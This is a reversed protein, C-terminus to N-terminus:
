DLINLDIKETKLRLTNTIINLKKLRSDEMSKNIKKWEEVIDIKKWTEIFEVILNEKNRTSMDLLTEKSWNICDKYKNIIIGITKNWKKVLKFKSHTNIIIQEDYEITNNIIKDKKELLVNRIGENKIKLKFNNHAILQWDKIIKNKASKTQLMHIKEKQKMNKLVNNITDILDKKLNTNNVIVYKEYESTITKWVEMNSNNNNKKISKIIKNIEKLSLTINFIKKLGILKNIMENDDVLLIMNLKELIFKIFKNSEIVETINDFTLIHKIESSIEKFWYLMRGNNENNEVVSKAIANTIKKAISNIDNKTQIVYVKENNAYKTNIIHKIKNINENIMNDKSNKKAYCTSNITDLFENIIEKKKLTTIKQQCVSINYKNFLIIKIFNIDNIFQIFNYRKIPKNKIIKRFWTTIIKKRIKEDKETTFNYRVKGVIYLDIIKKLNEWDLKDFFNLNGIKKYEDENSIIKNEENIKLWSGLYRANKKINFGFLEKLKYIKQLCKFDIDENYLIDSKDANIKLNYVNFITQMDNIVSIIDYYEENLIIDDAYLGIFIEKYKKLIYKIPYSIYYNFVIPSFRSGMPVGYKTQTFEENLKIYAQNSIALWLKLIYWKHYTKNDKKKLKDCKKKVIKELIERDVTEYARSLDILVFIGEKKKQLYVREIAQYTSSQKKFGFQRNLCNKNIKDQLISEIDNYFIEEFIKIFIPSIAIIRYNEISDINKKKNLFFTKYVLQTDNLIQILIDILKRKINQNDYKFYKTNNYTFTLLYKKMIKNINYSNINNYDIATSNIKNYVKYITNEQNYKRYKEKIENKQEENLIDYNTLFWQKEHEMEIQENKLFKKLKTLKKIIKFKNSKILKYSKAHSLKKYQEIYEKKITTGEFTERNDYKLLKRIVSYTKENLNYIIQNNLWKTLKEKKVELTDVKKQTIKKYIKKINNKITIAKDKLQEKETTIDINKNNFWKQGAKNTYENSEKIPIYTYRSLNVNIKIIKRLKVYLMNHDSLNKEIKINKYEIKKKNLKNNKQKQEYNWIITQNKEGVYKHKKLNEKKIKNKHSKLNVDGIITYNYLYNLLMFKKSTENPTYYTFIIKNDLM